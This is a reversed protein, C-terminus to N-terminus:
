TYTSSSWQCIKIHSRPALSPFLSCTLRPHQSMIYAVSAVGGKGSSLDRAVENKWCHYVVQQEVYMRRVGHGIIKEVRSCRSVMELFLMEAVVHSWAFVDVKENYKSGLFAQESWPAPCFFSPPVASGSPFSALTLLYSWQLRTSSILSMWEFVAQPACM